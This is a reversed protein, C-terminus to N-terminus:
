RLGLEKLEAIPEEFSCSGFSLFFESRTRRADAPDIATWGEPGYHSADQDELTARLRAPDGGLLAECAARSVNLFGHMVDTDCGADYTLPRVSRVAHHLGATAKFAARGKALALFRALEEPSPAAGKTTGGTRVKAHGHVDHVADLLERPDQAIPIEYFTELRGAVVTAAKRVEAVSFTKIELSEISADRLHRDHFAEVARLDAALDTGGLVSLHWPEGPELLPGAAREFEDLRAVPVVLRGLAWRDPGRRYAAYNRVTKEMDLGAPPFLGAYDIAQVLLDRVANM